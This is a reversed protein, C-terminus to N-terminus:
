DEGNEIFINIYNYIESVDASVVYKKNVGYGMGDDELTRPYIDLVPNSDEIAWLLSGDEKYQKKLGLSELIERVTMKYVPWGQFDTCIIDEKRHM